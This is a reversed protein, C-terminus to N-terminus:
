NMRWSEWIPSIQVYVEQQMAIRPCLKLLIVNASGLHSFLIPLSSLYLSWLIFLFLHPIRLTIHFHSLSFSFLFRLVILYPQSSYPFSYSLLSNGQPVVPYNGSSAVRYLLPILFINPWKCDSIFLTWSGFKLKSVHSAIETNFKWTKREHEPCTLCRGECFLTRRKGANDGYKCHMKLGNIKTVANRLPWSLWEWQTTAKMTIRRFYTRCILNLNIEANLSGAFPADKRRILEWQKARLSM